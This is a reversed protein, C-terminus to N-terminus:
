PTRRRRGTRTADIGLSRLFAVDKGDLRFSPDRPPARRTTLEIQAGTEGSQHCDVVLYLSYGEERIRRVAQSVESSTSIAQVLAKGLGRLMRRIKEDVPKM